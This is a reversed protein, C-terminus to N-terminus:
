QLDIVYAQSAFRPFRPRVQSQPQQPQQPRERKQRPSTWLAQLRPPPSVVSVRAGGPSLSKEVCIRSHM